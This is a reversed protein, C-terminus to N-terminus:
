NLFNCTTMQLNAVMIAVIWFIVVSASVVHVAAGSKGAQLLLKPKKRCLSATGTGDMCTWAGADSASDFSTITLSAESPSNVSGVYLEPFFSQCSKTRFNCSMALKNDPRKWFLEGAVNGNLRCYVQSTEGNKVDPGCNVSPAFVGNKWAPLLSKPKKRCLSATGTGDMCTWAGADSAFDFSTITLSAESPSDVSGVYLEPFFSQCSKTRFNCSMALKNDPRKWFLEGAVNGNLSCSVQSTEGNMVDPGCNVSPAFVGTSTKIFVMLAALALALKM